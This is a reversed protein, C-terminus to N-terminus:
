SPSYTLPTRGLKPSIVVLLRCPDPRMRMVVQQTVLIVLSLGTSLQRANQASPTDKHRCQVGFTAARASSTPSLIFASRVTKVSSIHARTAGSHGPWTVSGPRVATSLRRHRSPTRQRNRVPVGQRSRGGCKPRHVRTTVRNRRPVWAFRQSRITWSHDPSQSSDITDISPGIMCACRHAEPGWFPSHFRFSDTARFPSQGALDHGERISDSM